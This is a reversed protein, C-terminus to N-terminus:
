IGERHAFTVTIGEQKGSPFLHGKLELYAIQEATQAVREGEPLFDYDGIHKQVVTDPIIVTITVIHM